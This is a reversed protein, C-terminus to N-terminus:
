HLRKVEDTSLQYFDKAENLACGKIWDSIDASTVFYNLDLNANMMCAAKWLDRYTPHGVLWATLFGGHSLGMVGVKQPDVIHDFKKLAM